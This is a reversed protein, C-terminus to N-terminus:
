NSQVTPRAEPPPPENPPAGAPRTLQVEAELGDAGGALDPQVTRLIRMRLLSGHMTLQSVLTSQHLHATVTIRASQSLIHPLEYHHFFYVMSHLIFLWSTLLALGAYQGNFRYHYAYFSFHYLYFFKLWNRRTITTHCCFWDYQDASWVILIIYFAITSDNFFDTMIAEMGILALIVTLLPAFPFSVPTNFELM